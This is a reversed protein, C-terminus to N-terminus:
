KQAVTFNPFNHNHDSVLPSEVPSQSAMPQTVNPTVPSQGLELSLYLLCTVTSALLLREFM